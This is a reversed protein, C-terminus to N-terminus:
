IRVSIEITLATAAEGGDGVSCGMGAGVAIGTGSGVDCGM